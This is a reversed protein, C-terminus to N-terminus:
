KPKLIVYNEGCNGVIGWMIKLFYKETKMKPNEPPDDHSYMEM